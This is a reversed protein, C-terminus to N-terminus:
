ETFNVRFIDEAETASIIKSTWRLGVLAFCRLDRVAKVRWCSLSNSLVKELVANGPHQSSPVVQLNSLDEQILFELIHFLYM